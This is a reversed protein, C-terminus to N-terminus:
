CRCRFNSIKLKVRGHEIHVTERASGKDVTLEVIAGDRRLRGSLARSVPQGLERKYSRPAFRRSLVGNGRQMQSRQRPFTNVSGNALFPVSIGTL